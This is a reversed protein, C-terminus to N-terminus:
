GVAVKVSMGAGVSHPGGSPQCNYMTLSPSVSDDMARAVPVVTWCSWSAL